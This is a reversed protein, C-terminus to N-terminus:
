QAPPNATEPAQESRQLFSNVHNVLTDCAAHRADVADDIESGAELSEINKQQYAIQELIRQKREKYEKQLKEQDFAFSRRIKALESRTSDLRQSAEAEKQAKTKKSISRLFGARMRAIRGLEDRLKGLNGAVPKIALEKSAELERMRTAYERESKALLSKAELLDQNNKRIADERSTERLRREKLAAEIDSLAQSCKETFENDAHITPSTQFDIMTTRLNVLWRDFHGYFPPVGFRQSGLHNLSNVTRGVVEKLTPPNEEELRYAGSEERRRGSKAKSTTRGPRRGLHRPTRARQQYGM